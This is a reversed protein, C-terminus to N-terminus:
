RCRGPSLPVSPGYEPAPRAKCFAGGQLGHFLRPYKGQNRQRRYTRSFRHYRIFYLCNTRMTQEFGWKRGNSYSDPMVDTCQPHFCVSQRVQQPNAEPPVDPIGIVALRYASLSVGLHAAKEEITEPLLINQNIIDLFLKTKLDDYSQSVIEELEGFFQHDKREKEILSIAKKVAECIKPAPNNKVVFDVVSYRIAKQAYSFDSYGTLIIVKTKPSLESLRRTLELGDIGPMKIDTILIDPSYQPFQRLADEGNEALCCVECGLSQWDIFNKIGNRLIPEDDVIMINYM